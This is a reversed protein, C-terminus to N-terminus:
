CWTRSYGQNISELFMLVECEFLVFLKTYKINTELYGIPLLFNRFHIPALVGQMSGTRLEKIVETKIQTMGLNKKLKGCKVPNAIKIAHNQKKNQYYHYAM